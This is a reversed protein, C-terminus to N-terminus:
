NYKTPIESIDSKSQSFVTISVCGTDATRREPSPLLLHHPFAVKCCDSYFFFFIQTIYAHTHAHMFCLPAYVPKKKNNNKCSVQFSGRRTPAPLRTAAAADKIRHFVLRCPSLGGEEGEGRLAPRCYLECSSFATSTLIWQRGNM